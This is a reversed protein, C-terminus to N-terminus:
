RRLIPPGGPAGASTRRQPVEGRRTPRAAKKNEEQLEAVEATLRSIARRAKANGDKPLHMLRIPVSGPFDREADPKLDPDPWPIRGGAKEGFFVEITCGRHIECRSLIMKVPEAGRSQTTLSPVWRPGGPPYRGSHGPCSLDKSQSSRGWTDIGSHCARGVTLTGHFFGTEEGKV